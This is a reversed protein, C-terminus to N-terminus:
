PPAGSASQKGKPAEYSALGIDVKYSDGPSYHEILLREVAIPASEEAISTLLHIIPRLSVNSFSIRVSQRNYGNIVKSPEEQSSRVDIGEDKARSEVFADLGPPKNRFREEVAKREADRKALLESARDIDALVLRIADREEEVEALASTTTWVAAFVLLTMFVAGMASLMRRERDSLNDWSQRISEMWEPM